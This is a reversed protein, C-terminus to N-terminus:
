SYEPPPLDVRDYVLPDFVFNSAYQYGRWRTLFRAIRNVGQKPGDYRTEISFGETKTKDARGQSDHDRLDHLLDLQFLHLTQGPALQRIGSKRFASLNSIKQSNMYEFDGTLVLRINDARVSGINILSVQLYTRQSRYDIEGGGGGRSIASNRLKQPPGFQNRIDAYIEIVPRRHASVVQLAVRLSGTVTATSIEM